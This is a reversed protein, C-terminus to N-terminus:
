EGKGKGQQGVRDIRQREIYWGVWCMGVLWPFVYLQPKEDGFEPDTWGAGPYLIGSLSSLYVLNQLVLVWNLHVQKIGPAISPSPLLIFLIYITLLGVFLGLSMTQGNHYRAHPPWNPNYIHTKNWDALYPGFLTVLNVLAILCKGPTFVPPTQSLPNPM